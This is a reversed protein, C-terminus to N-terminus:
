ANNKSFKPKFRMMGVTIAITSLYFIVQMGNPRSDYGFITNLVKGTISNNDILWSTDWLQDSLAEIIGSSTLIGAAESALSAAILTLLITSIKFIYKSAYRMLGMYVLTGVALGGFAGFGIGSIYENSEITGASAISYVFLIIEVGERFIAAAVVVSLMIKSVAGATIKDSLKSLDKRMKKTYGQMWVVTWSILAATFLIVGADFMEDGLENMSESISKVFFAFIAACFIGLLSGLIVFKKSDRIPQTAALMIGLLLAIEMCERFVVIALKIM